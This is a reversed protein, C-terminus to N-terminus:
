NIKPYYGMKSKLDEDKLAYLDIDKESRCKQSISRVFVLLIDALRQKCKVLDLMAPSYYKSVQRCIKRYCSTTSYDKFTLESEISTNLLSFFYLCYFVLIM